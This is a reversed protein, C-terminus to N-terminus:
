SRFREPIQEVALAEGEGIFMRFTKMERDEGIDKKGLYVIKIPEGLRVMSSDALQVIMSGSVMVAGKYPVLVTVVTYEGFKGNKKTRGAYYGILEDGKRPRWSTPAEVEKWKVKKLDSKSM